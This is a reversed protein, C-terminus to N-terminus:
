QKNRPVLLKNTMEKKIISRQVRKKSDIQKITRNLKNWPLISKIKFIHLKLNIILYGKIIRPYIQTLLYIILIFQNKQHINNIIKVQLSIIAIKLQNYKIITLILKLLKNSFSLSIIYIGRKSILIKSLVILHYIWLTELRNTSLTTIAIILNTAEKALDM